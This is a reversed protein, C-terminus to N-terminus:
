SILESGKVLFRTDRSSAVVNGTGQWKYTWIGPSTPLFESYYVGTGNRTILNSSIQTVIGAPNEIFLSVTIPDAPANLVTNYFTVNLQIITDVQYINM